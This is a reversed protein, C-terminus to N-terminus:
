ELVFEVRRNPKRENVDQSIVIPFKSGHGHNSIRSNAIGGKILYDAVAKARQESLIQNDVSDGLYDTHGAIRIKRTPNSQLYDILNDLEGYTDSRIVASQQEFVVTKLVITKQVPMETKVIKRIEEAPLSKMESKKKVDSNNRTILYSANSLQLPSRTPILNPLPINVIRFQRSHHDFMEYIEAPIEWKIDFVSHVISNYYEIRIDYFEGEKLFITGTFATAEHDAWQNIILEYNVWLKVGDDSLVHFTFLGTKPAKISGSWRISFYEAGM